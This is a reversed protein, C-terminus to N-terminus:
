GRDELKDIVKQTLRLAVERKTMKKWSEHTESTIFHVTNQDDGFVQGGSVDNAIIIDCGKKMLKAKANEILHETEAAFGIVLRPRNRHHCVEHLIDPNKIFTLTLKDSNNTKKIKQDSIHKVRYDSVAAAFIGIDFHPNHTTPIIAEFVAKRMELATEVNIIKVNDYRLLSCASQSVEQMKPLNKVKSHESSIVFNGQILVVDHGVDAFAKAIEVGQKGSSRNGIFRVPDIPEFTAGATIIVKM